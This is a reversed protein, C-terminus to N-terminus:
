DIRIDTEDILTVITTYINVKICEVLEYYIQNGEANKFKYVVELLYKAQHRILPSESKLDKEWKRLYSEPNDRIHEFAKVVADRLLEEDVHRNKCLVKGKEEYKHNCQWIVRRLKKNTSNWVKRGLLGGCEGCGPNGFVIVISSKEGVGGSTM